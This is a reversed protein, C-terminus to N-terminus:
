HFELVNESEEVDCIFEKIADRFPDLSSSTSDIDWGILALRLVEMELKLKDLDGCQLTKSILSTIGFTRFSIYGGECDSHFIFENFLTPAGNYVEDLTYDNGEITLVFERMRQMTSYARRYQKIALGM